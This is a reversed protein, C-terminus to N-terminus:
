GAPRYSDMNGKVQLCPISRESSRPLRDPDRAGDGLHLLLDLRSGLIRLVRELNGLDGHTDSVVLIKM